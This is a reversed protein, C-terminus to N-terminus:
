SASSYTPFFHGREDKRLREPIFAGNLRSFRTVSAITVRWASPHEYPMIRLRQYGLRHLESVMRIVRQSRRIWAHSSNMHGSRGGSGSTEKSPMAAGRRLPDPWDLIKTDRSARTADPPNSQKIPAHLLGWLSGSGLTNASDLQSSASGARQ